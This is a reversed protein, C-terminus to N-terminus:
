PSVIALLDQDVLEQIFEGLDHRLVDPKVDYQELLDEYAAQLSDATTLTNWMHSGVEDLGFYHGNEVHLLIATGELERFIVAEPVTVRLQWFTSM